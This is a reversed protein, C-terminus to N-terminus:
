EGALACSSFADRPAANTEKRPSRLGGANSAPSGDVATQSTRLQAMHEAVKRAGRNREQWVTRAIKLAM